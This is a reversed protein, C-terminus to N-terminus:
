TRLLEKGFCIEFGNSSLSSSGKSVDVEGKSVRMSHAVLEVMDETVQEILYRLNEGTQAFDPYANVELLVVQHNDLVLYDVGFIEFANPLTQFNVPQATAAEFLEGTVTKLQRWIDDVRLGEDRLDWFHHVAEVTPNDPQSANQYCTNTLHKPLQDQEFSPPEYPQTSSLVLLNKHLFVKLSGICLVYARIHFKRDQLSKLLLPRTLYEQVVFFRMDSTRVGHKNDYNSSNSVSSVEEEDDASSEPENEEFIQTLEAITSFLRLGAGRESMGPKLIFWKREAEELEENQELEGRLEFAEDLADDLFEVYDVELNWSVPIANRLQCDSKKAVFERVTQSLFHKRILAKRISYACIWKNRDELAAQFDLDEYDAWQLNAETATSAITYDGFHLSLARSLSNITYHTVPQLFIHM